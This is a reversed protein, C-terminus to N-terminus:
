QVGYGANSFGISVTNPNRVNSFTVRAKFISAAREECERM